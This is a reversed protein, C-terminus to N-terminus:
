ISYELCGRELSLMPYKILNVCVCMHIYLIYAYMVLETLGRCTVYKGGGEDGMQTPDKVDEAMVYLRSKKRELVAEQVTASCSDREVRNRPASALCWPLRQSRDQVQREGHGHGHSCSNGLENRLHSATRKHGATNSSNLTSNGCWINIGQLLPYWAISYHQHM